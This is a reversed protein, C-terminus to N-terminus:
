APARFRTLRVTLRGEPIKPLPLPHFIEMGDRYHGGRSSPPTAPATASSQLSPSPLASTMEVGLFAGANAFDDDCSAFGGGNASRM